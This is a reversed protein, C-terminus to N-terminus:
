KVQIDIQSDVRRSTPKMATFDPLKDMKKGVAYYEALLGPALDAEMKDGTKAKSDPTRREDQSGWAALSLALIALGTTWAARNM